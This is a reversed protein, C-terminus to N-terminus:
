AIIKRPHRKLSQDKYRLDFNDDRVLKRYRIGSEFLNVATGDKMEEQVRLFSTFIKTKALWNGNM